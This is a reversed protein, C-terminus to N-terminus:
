RTLVAKVQDNGTGDNATFNITIQQFEADANGSGSFSVGSTTQQPISFSFGSLNAQVRTGSINYLGNIVIQQDNAGRSINVQYIQPANLGTEERCQWNGTYEGIFNIDDDEDEACSVALLQIAFAILGLKLLGKM